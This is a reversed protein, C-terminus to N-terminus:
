LTSRYGRDPYYDKDPVQVFCWWSQEQLLLATKKKEWMLVFVQLWQQSILIVTSYYPAQGERKEGYLLVQVIPKTSGSHLSVKIWRSPSPHTGKYKQCLTETHLVTRPPSNSHNLLRLLDLLSGATARHRTLLGLPGSDCRRYCPACIISKDTCLCAGLCHSM